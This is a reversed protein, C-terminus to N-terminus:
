KGFYLGSTTQESTGKQIGAKAPIVSESGPADTMGSESGPADTMGSESGPDLPSHAIVKQIGAKAPIVSESGPDLPSHAIIRQIGAKAPIVSQSGSAETMGAESGPDLEAAFLTTSIGKKLAPTAEPDKIRNM